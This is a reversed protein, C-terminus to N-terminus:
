KKPLTRTEGESDMKLHRTTPETVSGPRDALGGTDYISAKPPSVYDTQNPPLASQAPASNIVNETPSTFKANRNESKKLQVMQAIGSGFCGFAPILLWFWWKQGNYKDTIGLIISVALFAFGMFINTIASQWNISRGKHATMNTIEIPDIMGFGSNGSPKGSLAAAVSGLGRRVLPLIKGNGPEANWM